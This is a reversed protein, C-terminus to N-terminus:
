STLDVVEANPANLKVSEIGNDRAAISSYMESTGIVEYNAAKLVFYPQGSTSTKREYRSDYPANEKVSKIGNEAGSKSQYMESSLIPEGNAAKLKFHYQGNSSKKLEFKGPM